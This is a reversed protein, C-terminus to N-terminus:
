GARQARGRWWRALGGGKGREGSPEGAARELRDVPEPLLALHGERIELV